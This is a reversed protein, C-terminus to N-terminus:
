PRKGGSRTVRQVKIQSNMPIFREYPAFRTKNREERVPSKIDSLVPRYFKFGRYSNGYICSPEIQKGCFDKSIYEKYAGQNTQLPNKEPIESHITSEYPEESFIYTLSSAFAASIM